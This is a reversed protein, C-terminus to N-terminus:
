NKTDVLLGTVGSIFGKECRQRVINKSRIKSRSGHM